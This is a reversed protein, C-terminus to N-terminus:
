PKAQGKLIPEIRLMFGNAETTMEGDHEGCTLSFRGDRWIIKKTAPKGCRNGCPKGDPTHSDHYDCDLKM